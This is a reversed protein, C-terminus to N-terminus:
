KLPLMKMKKKMQEINLFYKQNEKSGKYTTTDFNQPQQFYIKDWQSYYSQAIHLFYTM